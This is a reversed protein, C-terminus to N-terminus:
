YYNLAYNYNRLLGGFETCDENVSVLESASLGRLHCHKSGAMIPIEGLSM